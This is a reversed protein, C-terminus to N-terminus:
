SKPQGGLLHGWLKPGLSKIGAVYCLRRIALVTVGIWLVGGTAVNLFAPLWQIAALGAGLGAFGIAMVQKTEASWRFGTMVGVMWRVMLTYCVYTWIVAFGAANHDLIPLLLWTAALTNVHGVLDVLLNRRVDAKAIFVYGMPWSIIRGFVGVAMLQLAEVAPGFAGSYFIPVVYGAFVITGVVGPMALLMAIMTQENVLRNIAVDDGVVASLRPLFDTGMAGLIYGAYLGSLSFAAQFIGMGGEGLERVILLRQAFFALSSMVALMLMLGGLQFLRRATAPCYRGEGAPLHPRAGHWALAVQLGAGSVLAPVIGGEGWLAFCVISVATGAVGGWLNMRAVRSMDQAGQIVAGYYTGLLGLAVTTGLVAIAATHGGDGFTIRSIPWALVALLVMGGGGLWLTLRWFTANVDRLRQAEDAARATALEKVGGTALGCGALTQALGTISMYMGMLGVGTPGLLVAVLKTRVMSLLVNVATTGGLISTAWLIRRHSGEASTAPPVAPAIVSKAFASNM